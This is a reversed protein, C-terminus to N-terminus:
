YLLFLFDHRFSAFHTYLFLFPYLLVFCGVAGRAKWATEMRKRKRRQMIHLACFLSVCFAVVGTWRTDNFFCSLDFIGAVGLFLCPLFWGIRWRWMSWSVKWGRRGTTKKSNKNENEFSAVLSGRMCIVM